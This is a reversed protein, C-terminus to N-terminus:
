LSVTALFFIPVFYSAAFCRAVTENYYVDEPYNFEFGDDFKAQLQAELEASNASGAGQFLCIESGNNLAEFCLPCTPEFGDVGEM